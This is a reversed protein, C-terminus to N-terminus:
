PWGKIEATLFSDSFKGTTPLKRKNHGV